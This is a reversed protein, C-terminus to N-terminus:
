FVRLERAAALASADGAAAVDLEEWTGRQTVWRVFAGGDSTITAQSAGEGLKMTRPAPGNVRLEISGALGAVIDANQQPLAASIWDLVPTLHFADIAPPDGALPGRPGFLDARIHTFHDFTYANPLISVPYTGLDGLPLEFDQEALGALQDLAKASVSRYDDVIRDATWSRRAVVYHDQAQETPLGAADPLTSPDVVLWFLADMHAVLDQVSWGPCGSPAAWQDGSLTECIALLAERDAALADIAPTAM